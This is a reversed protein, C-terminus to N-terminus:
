PVDDRKLKNLASEFYGSIQHSLELVKQLDDAVRDQRAERARQIWKQIDKEHEKNHKLLYPLGLELKRVNEHYHDDMKELSGTKKLIVYNEILDVENIYYGRLYKIEGMLSRIHVNEDEASVQAAEEIVLKGQEKKELYINSLCM